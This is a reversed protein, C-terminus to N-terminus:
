RLAPLRPRGTSAPIVPPAALYPYPDIAHYFHRGFLQYIGYHLHTPTTRADGTNGVYGIVDRAQVWERVHVPGFASLHAYYHIYGGPGLIKVVNGGLRNQGVKLIMGPTAALVPTYRPAFIDIGEHHRGGSRPAGFSDHLAHVSIGRVPVPLHAPMPSRLLAALNQRRLDPLAQGEISPPAPLLPSRLRSQLAGTSWLSPLWPSRVGTLPLLIIIGGILMATMLPWSLARADTM